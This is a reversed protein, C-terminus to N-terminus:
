PWSYSITITDWTTNITISGWESTISNQTFEQSTWANYDTSLNWLWTTNLRLDTFSDLNAFEKPLLNLWPNNEFNSAKLKILNWIQSPFSTLQNENLDFYELNVLNGIEPAITEIDNYWFYLEKLSTFNWIDSTIWTFTCEWFNLVELQSFNKISDPISSIPNVNLNLTKLKTLNSLSSPLTSILGSSIDLFILNTLNWIWSSITWLNNWAINLNTLAKLNWLETPLSWIWRWWLNLETLNCWEEKTKTPEWEPILATNLNEHDFTAAMCEAVPDWGGGWTDALYVWTSTYAISAEIVETTPPNTNDYYAVLWWWITTESTDSLNVAMDETVSTEQIDQLPIVSAWSNMVVVSLADWMSYAFRNTYETAQADLIYWWVDITMSSKNELFATVKYKTQRANINYTYFANDVPDRYWWEKSSKVLRNVSEWAEWQYWILNWSDTTAWSYMWVSKDPIPYLWTTASYVWIWKWLSAVDSMRTSDRATSAQSGFSLFAITALIALIVIVVILEVLTFAKINHSPGKQKLITM